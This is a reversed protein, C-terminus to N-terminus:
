WKASDIGNALLFTKFITDRQIFSQVAGADFIGWPFSNLKVSDAETGFLSITEDRHYKSGIDSMMLNIGSSLNNHLKDYRLKKQYQENYYYATVILSSCLVAIVLAIIIVLYLSSAKLM